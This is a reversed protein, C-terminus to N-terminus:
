DEIGRNSTVLTSFTKYRSMLVDALEDGAGFPLKRPFLDDIVMLDEAKLQAHYKRIEGLERARHIDDILAHAERYFVKYGRQVALQAPAKATHNKGHGPTSRGRKLPSTTTERRINTSM